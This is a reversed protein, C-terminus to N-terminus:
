SDVMRFILFDKAILCQAGPSRSSVLCHSLQQRAVPSPFHLPARRHSPGLVLVVQAQWCGGRYRSGGGHLCVGSGAQLIGFREEVASAAPEEPEVRVVASVPAPLFTVDSRIVM